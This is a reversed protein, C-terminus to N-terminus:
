RPTCREFPSPCFEHPSDPTMEWIAVYVLLGFVIVVLGGFIWPAASSPRPTPGVIIKEDGTKSEIGREKLEQELTKLTQERWKPDFGHVQGHRSLFAGKGGTGAHHGITGGGGSM